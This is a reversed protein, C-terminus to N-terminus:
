TLLPSLWREADALPIGRRTAYDALQDRDMKALGFYKAEPHGFYYGSVAATPYMAKSETLHLGTHLEAQLLEFLLDKELHDPCAPYGPAPRIGQYKEEILADNALEEDAAYGWFEMRVRQHLREAFAEALRDALAQLMLARYDDNADKFQQCREDVGHGTTVAFLGLSDQGAPDIFDALALYPQREAKQGQQRLTLFRREGEATQVAIDDGDQRAPFFGYVAHATIWREAVVQRLMEQADDFLSQAHSGVLEDSLIRPYKGHLDWAQFFPTWDIYPVLDELPYNRLPFVGYQAPPAPKAAFDPRYRLTRAQNISAFRRETSRTAYQERLREYDARVENQYDDAGAGLLKQVVPVARSADNVHVLPGKYVPQIKVATHARSTTAGGILLPINFGQRQMESALFVMEDLSPTILGSLGIADVGHEIAADLIKQPPVMVGLDIVEFNNCQLVVGVINKGIDHVDGKVTAMLIKGQKRPATGAAASEAAFHPELWAVARKM